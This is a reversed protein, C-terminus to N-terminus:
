VIEYNMKFDLERIRSIAGKSDKLIWDGVNLDYNAYRTSVNIRFPFLEVQTVGGILSRIKPQGPENKIAETVQLAEFIEKKRVKM